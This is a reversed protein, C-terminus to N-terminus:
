LGCSSRALRSVSLYLCSSCGHDHASDTFAWPLLCLLLFGVALPCFHFLGIDLLPLSAYWTSHKGRKSAERCTTPQLMRDKMSLTDRYTNAFSTSSPRSRRSMPVTDFSKSLPLCTSRHCLTTPQITESRGSIGDSLHSTKTSSHRLSQLSKRRWKGCSAATSSAKWFRAHAVPSFESV